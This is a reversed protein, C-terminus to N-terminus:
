AWNEPLKRNRKTLLDPIKDVIYKKESLLGVFVPNEFGGTLSDGSGAFISFHVTLYGRM